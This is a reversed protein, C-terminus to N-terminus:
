PTCTLEEGDLVVRWGAKALAEAAWVRHCEGGAAKDRSCACCLTDGDSVASRAHNELIAYLQGPALRRKAALDRMRRVYRRRYRASSLKGRRMQGFDQANSELAPVRGDGHEWRRPRAMITFKRGPGHLTRSSWNTVHLTPRDSM